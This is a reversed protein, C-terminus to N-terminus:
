TIKGDGHLHGGATHEKGGMGGDTVKAPNGPERLSQNPAPPPSLM